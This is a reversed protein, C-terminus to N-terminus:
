TIRITNDHGVINTILYVLLVMPFILTTVNLFSRINVENEWWRFSYFFNRNWVWTGMSWRHHRRSVSYFDLYDSQFAIKTYGVKLKHVHKVQARWYTKYLNLNCDVYLRKFNKAFKRTSWFNNYKNLFLNM